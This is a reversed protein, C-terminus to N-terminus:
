IGRNSRQQHELHSLREDGIHCCQPTVVMRLDCRVIMRDNGASNAAAHTAHTIRGVDAQFSGALTAAHSVDGQLLAHDLLYHRQNGRDARDEVDRVM